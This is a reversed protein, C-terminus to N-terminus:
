KVGMLLTGDQRHELVIYPEERYSIAKGPAIASVPTKM